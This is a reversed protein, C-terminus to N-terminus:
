PFLERYLSVWNAVMKRQLEATRSPDECALQCVRAELRDKREANWYPEIRQRPQAWLNSDHGSGSACLCPHDVEFTPHPGSSVGYEALIKDDRERTWHRLERTSGCIPTAYAVKGPTLRPNPLDYVSPETPASPAAFAAIGLAIAAIAILSRM